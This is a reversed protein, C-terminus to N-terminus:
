GIHTKETCFSQLLFLSSDLVNVLECAHFRPFICCDFLMMLDLKVIKLLQSNRAIQELWREGATIISNILFISIANLVNRVQGLFFGALKLALFVCLFKPKVTQNIYKTNVKFCHSTNFAIHSCAHEPGAHTHAHQDPAHSKAFQLIDSKRCIRKLKILRVM